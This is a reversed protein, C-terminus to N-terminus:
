HGLGNGPMHCSRHGQRTVQGQSRVQASRQPHAGDVPHQQQEDTHDRVQGSMLQGRCTHATWRTNSSMQTVESRVQSSRQLHTGDVQDQQQQDTHREQQLAGTLLHATVEGDAPDAQQEEEPHYVLHVDDGSIEPGDVAGHASKLCHKALKSKRTKRSLLGTLDVFRSFERCEFRKWSKRPNNDKM